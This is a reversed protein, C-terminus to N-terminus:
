LPFERHAREPHRYMFGMERLFTLHDSLRSQFDAWNKKESPSWAVESLACMRPLIMYELLKWTPIRETWINGQLGLIKSKSEADLEEPLPEYAYVTELPIVGLNGPEEIETSNKYDFYCHGTPSMIAEHGMKAAATGGEVGRWSMVVAGPPIGGDLIEDWGIIDKGLSKLFKGARTIFWSQLANENKLGEDKMRRQCDPCEKWRNKPCEDGGVHVFRGPFLQAVEALVKELFAFTKEKGACFVDEFIGCTNAVDFPGGACSLEPFAALVARAHGPMEIEPVVLIKRAEAYDLIEQVDERSYYGGYREGDRDRWASIRALQPFAESALRWGQDDTLHWHFVNMRHLAILDILRKVQRVPYFHRCVDLHMGRWGFRPSDDIVSVPWGDEGLLVTLAAAGRVWGTETGTITIGEPRIELRYAEEAIADLRFQIDAGSASPAIECRLGSRRRRLWNSLVGAVGPRQSDSPPVAIKLVPGVKFYGAGPQYSTPAPILSPSSHTPM